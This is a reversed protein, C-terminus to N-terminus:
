WATQSLNCKVGDDGFYCSMEPEENPTSINKPYNEPIDGIIIKDGLTNWNSKQGALLGDCTCDSFSIDKCEGVTSIGYCSGYETICDRIKLHDVKVQECGSVAVCRIKDGQYKVFHLGGNLGGPKNVIDYDLNREANEDGYKGCNRVHKISVHSIRCDKVASLFFSINGKMYHAMSDRLNSFPYKPLESKGEVWEVMDGPINLSGSHGLESKYKGLIFWANGLVNPFYKGNDILELIRIVDGVPGKQVNSGKSDISIGIVEKPCAFLNSISIDHLAINQNGIAGDRNLRFNEVAVGLPHLLIGYVAGDPLKTPNDFFGTVKQNNKFPLYVHNIMETELKTIVDGVSVPTGNVNLVADKNKTQLSYLFPRIFMAHSYSALVPVDHNNQSISINRFIMNKGGNLAIGAIETHSISINELIVSEMGNGHIGHHSSRGIYGNKIYVRKPAVLNGFNGPGQGFIFPTNALEICAFFRQQLYHMPHQSLTFGNLDIVVDNAEVTIAAFFGLHFPHFPYEGSALQEPTPQFNYLVNKGNPSTNQSINANPAFSINETLKYYGPKTIRYTGHKFDDQSLETVKPSYNKFFKLLDMQSHKYLNYYNNVFGYEIFKNTSKSIEFSTPM